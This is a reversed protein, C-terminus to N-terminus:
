SNGYNSLDKEFVSGLKKLLAAAKDKDIAGKHTRHYDVDWEEYNVTGDGKLIIHAETIDMDQFALRAILSNRHNSNMQKPSVYLTYCPSKGGYPRIDVYPHEDGQAISRTISGQDLAECLILTRLDQVPHYAVVDLQESM